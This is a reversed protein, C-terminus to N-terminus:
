EVVQISHKLHRNQDAKCTKGKSSRQIGSTTVKTSHVGKSPTIPKFLDEEKDQLQGDESTDDGEVVIKSEEAQAGEPEFSVERSSTAELPGEGMLNMNGTLLYQQIETCKQLIEPMGKILNYVAPELKQIIVDSEKLPYETYDPLTSM